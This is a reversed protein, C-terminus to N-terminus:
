QQECPPRWNWGAVLLGVVLAHVLLSSPPWSIHAWAVEESSVLAATNGHIM